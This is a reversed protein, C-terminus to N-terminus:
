KDSYTPETTATPHSREFFATSQRRNLFMKMAHNTVTGMEPRILAAIMAIKTWTMRHANLQVGLLPLLFFRESACWSLFSHLKFALIYRKGRALLKMLFLLFFFFNSLTQHCTGTTRPQMMKLSYSAIQEMQTVYSTTAVKKNRKAKKKM